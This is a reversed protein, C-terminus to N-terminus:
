TAAALKEALPARGEIIQGEAFEPDFYSRLPAGAIALERLHILRRITRSISYCAWKMTEAEAERFVIPARLVKGIIFEHNDPLGPHAVM